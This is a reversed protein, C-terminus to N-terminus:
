FGVRLGARVARQLALYGLPEQYNRNTLNDVSVLATLGTRLRWSASRFLM